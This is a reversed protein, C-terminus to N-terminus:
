STPITNGKSRMVPRDPAPPKRRLLVALRGERTVHSALQAQKRVLVEGPPLPLSKEYNSATSSSTCLLITGKQLMRPKGPKPIAIPKTVQLQVWVKDAQSHRAPSSLAFM